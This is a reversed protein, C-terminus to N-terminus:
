PIPLTQDLTPRISRYASVIGASAPNKIRYSAAM